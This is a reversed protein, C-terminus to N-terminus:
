PAGWYRQRSILWDRLRYNVMRKGISNKEMYDAIKEKADINSLSNFEKSNVLIGNETYAKELKGSAVPENSNQIVVKIPLNYKKAFDFDRTDHAPVAMVAGTGYDMLVYDVIWLDIEEGTM